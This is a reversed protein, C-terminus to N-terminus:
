GPLPLAREQGLFPYAGNRAWSLTPGTGQEPLTLGWEQGLCLYAGNIAWAPTPEM